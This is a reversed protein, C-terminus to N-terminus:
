DSRRAIIGSKPHPESVGQPPPVSRIHARNLDRLRDACAVFYARAFAFAHADFSDDRGFADLFEDVLRADPEEHDLRDVFLTLM